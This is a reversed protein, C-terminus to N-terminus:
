RVSMSCLARNGGFAAGGSRVRSRAFSHFAASRFSFRLFETVARSSIVGKGASADASVLRM